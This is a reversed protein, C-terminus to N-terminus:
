ITRNIEGEFRMEFEIRVDRGTRKANWTYLPETGLAPHPLLAVVMERFEPFRISSSRGACPSIIADVFGFLLKRHRLKCNALLDFVDSVIVLQARDDGHKRGNVFSPYATSM